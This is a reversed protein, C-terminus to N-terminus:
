GTLIKSCGGLGGCAVRKPVMSLFEGCPVVGLRVTGSVHWSTNTISEWWVKDENTTRRKTPTHKKSLFLGVLTGLLDGQRM